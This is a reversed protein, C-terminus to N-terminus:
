WAAHPISQEGVGVPNASVRELRMADSRIAGIPGVTSGVVVDCFVNTDVEAWSPSHILLQVGQLTGKLADEGDRVFLCISVRGRSPQTSPKNLAQNLSARDLGTGLAAGEGDAGSIRACDAMHKQAQASGDLEKPLHGAEPCM